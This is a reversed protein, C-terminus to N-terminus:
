TSALIETGPVIYIELILSLAAMFFRRVLVLVSALSVVIFMSFVLALTELGRLSFFMM